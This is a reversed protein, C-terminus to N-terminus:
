PDEDRRQFVLNPTNRFIARLVWGAGLFFLLREM